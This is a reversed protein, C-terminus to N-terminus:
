ILLSAREMAELMCRALEHIEPQADRMYDFSLSTIGGTTATVVVKIFQFPETLRNVIQKHYGVENFSRAYNCADSAANSWEIIGDPLEERAQM